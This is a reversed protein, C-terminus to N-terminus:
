SGNNLIFILIVRYPRTRFCICFSSGVACIEWSGFNVTFNCLIRLTLKFLIIQSFLKLWLRWKVKISVIVNAMSFCVCSLILWSHYFCSATKFLIQFIYLLIFLILYIGEIVVNILALFEIKHFYKLFLLCLLNVISKQFSLHYNFSFPFGVFFIFIFTRLTASYRHTWFFWRKSSGLLNKLFFLLM